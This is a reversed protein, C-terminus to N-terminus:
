DEKDDGPRALEATPDTGDDTVDLDPTAVPEGHPQDGTLDDVPRDEAVAPMADAAAALGEDTTLPDRQGGTTDLDPDVPDADAATTIPDTM